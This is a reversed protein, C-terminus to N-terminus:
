VARVVIVKKGSRMTVVKKLTKGGPLPMSLFLHCTILAWAFGTATRSGPFQLWRGWSLSMTEDDKGKLQNRWAISDVAIVYALLGIWGREGTTLTRKHHKSNDM